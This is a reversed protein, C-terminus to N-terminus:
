ALRVEGDIVAVSVATLRDGACPGAICLGTDIAFLAGHTRCMIYAGDPSLIRGDDLDLPTNRHPCDNRYAFVAGDRRVLAINPEWSGAPQRPDRLAISGGDPLADLRCLAPGVTGAASM